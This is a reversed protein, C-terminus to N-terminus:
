SIPSLFINMYYTVKGLYTRNQSAVYIAKRKSM